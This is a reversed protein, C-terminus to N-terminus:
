RNLASYALTGSFMLLVVSACRLLAFARSAWRRNSTILGGLSSWGVGVPLLVLLFAAIAHAFYGASQFAALPFITSAFLLAKPNMLTAVFLNKFSVPGSAHQQLKSGKAWMEVALYFIFASSLLKVGSYIWPSKRAISSLFFGWLSIAVVYGLAEAVVLPWTVRIGAKLGAALLLTNTPGPMILVLSIYFSMKLLADLTPM